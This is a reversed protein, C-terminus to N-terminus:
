KWSTNSTRRAAKDISTCTDSSRILFERATQHILFICDDIIIVFLGCAGRSAAKVSATSLVDKELEAFTRHSEERTALAVAMERLHLPREAALIAHLIWRVKESDGGKSLIKDYTEEVTRPISQLRRRFDGLTLCDSLFSGDEMDAFVLHVWLYTRNESESMRVALEEWMAASLDFRNPLQRIRQQIVITIEHSIKDVEVQSEGSLHITPQASELALLGAGIERYLRSIVLLKLGSNKAEMYLSSLAELLVAQNNCEDLADLICVIQDGGAAAVQSGVETLIEWLTDFTLFLKLGEPELRALVDDSILDPRQTFLQHLVSCLASEATRQNEFDDKFFFIACSTKM